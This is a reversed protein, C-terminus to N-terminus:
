TANYIRYRESINANKTKNSTENVIYCTYPQNKKKKFFFHKITILWKIYRMPIVKEFKDRRRRFVTLYIDILLYKLFM